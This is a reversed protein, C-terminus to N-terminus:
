KRSKLKYGLTIHALRNRAEYFILEGFDNHVLGRAFVKSGVYYELGIGIKDNIEYSLSSTIGLDSGYNFGVPGVTGVPVGSIFYRYLGGIAIKTKGKTYQLAMPIEICYLNASSVGDDLNFFTYPRVMRTRRSEEYLTERKMSLGVRLGANLALKESIPKSAMLGIRFNPSAFRYYKGHIKQNFFKVNYRYYSVGMGGTLYLKIKRTESLDKQAFLSYSLLLCMFFLLNKM